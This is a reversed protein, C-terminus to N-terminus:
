QSLHYNARSMELLSPFQELDLRFAGIVPFDSWLVLDPVKLDPFFGYILPSARQPSIPLM